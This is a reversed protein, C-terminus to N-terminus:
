NKIDGGGFFVFGKILLTKSKDQAEDTYRIREDDFAGFISTVKVIVNWDKPVLIDTGGFFTLIELTHNGEALKSDRLNIDMGGFITTIKGGRFNNSSIIKDSGSLICFENLYDNDILNSKDNLDFNKAENEFSDVVTKKEKAKLLIYIGLLILIIPWFDEFINMPIHFKDKLLKYAGVAVFIYGILNNKSNILIIVGIFLLIAPFSFIINHLEFPIIMFNKSLLLFGVAILILGISSKSNSSAM